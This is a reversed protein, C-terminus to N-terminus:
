YQQAQQTRQDQLRQDSMEKLLGAVQGQGAEVIPATRAGRLSMEIDSTGTQGVLGRRQAEGQAGAEAQKRQLENRRQVEEILKAYEPSAFDVM